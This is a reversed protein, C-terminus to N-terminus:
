ILIVAALPAQEVKWGLFRITVPEANQLAFVVVAIAGAAGLLYFFPMTKGQFGTYLLDTARVLAGRMM